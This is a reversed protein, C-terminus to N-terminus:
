QLIESCVISFEFGLTWIETDAVPSKQEIKDCM